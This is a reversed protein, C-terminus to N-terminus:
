EKSNYSKIFSEALVFDKKSDIDIILNDHLLPKIKKGFQEFLLFPKLKKEMFKLFYDTKFLITHGDHIMFQKLDQRRYGSSEKEPLTDKNLEFMDFPNYKEVNQMSVACDYDKNNRLFDYANIFEDTYRTPINGYLLSIYEFDQGIKKYADYIADEIRAKDSALKESRQIFPIKESFCYEKVEKSDSTVVTFVEDNLLQSLKLSYEVSYEFVAKGDIKRICKNKFGKSGARVTIVSFISM